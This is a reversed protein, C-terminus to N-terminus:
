SGLLQSLAKVEQSFHINQPPYVANDRVGGRVIDLQVREGTNRPPLIRVGSEHVKMQGPFSGYKLVQSSGPQAVGRTEEMLLHNTNSLQAFSGYPLRGQGLLNGSADYGRVESFRVTDRLQPVINAVGNSSVRALQQASLRQSLTSGVETGIARTADQAISRTHNFSLRNDSLGREVGSRHNVSQASTIANQQLAKKQAQRFEYQQVIERSRQAQTEELERLRTQTAIAQRQEQEAIIISAQRETEAYQAKRRYSYELEQQRVRADLAAKQEQEKVHSKVANRLAETQADAALGSIGNVVREAKSSSLGHSKLAEIQVKRTNEKRAKEERWVTLRKDEKQMINEVMNKTLGYPKPSSVPKTTKPLKRALDGEIKKNLGAGEGLLRSMLSPSGISQLLQKKDQTPVLLILSNSVRSPYHRYITALAGHKAKGNTGLLNLKPHGNSGQQVIDKMLASMTSIDRDGYDSYMRDLLAEFRSDNGDPYLRGNLLSIVESRYGKDLAQCLLSLGSNRIEKVAPTEKSHNYESKDPLFLAHQATSIMARNEEPSLLSESALKEEFYQLNHLTNPILEGKLADKDHFLVEGHKQEKNTTSREGGEAKSSGENSAQSGGAASATQNSLATAGGINAGANGEDDKDDKDDKKHNEKVEVQPNKADDMEEEHFPDFKDLPLLNEVPGIRNKIAHENTPKFHGSDNSWSLLSGGGKLPNDIKPFCMTGALLVPKTCRAAKEEISLSSDRLIDGSNNLYALSSHGFNIPGCARDALEKRSYIQYKEFCLVTLPDEELIAFVVEGTPIKPDSGDIPNILYADNHVKSLTCIVDDPISLQPFMTNRACSVMNQSASHKKKLVEDISLQPSKAVNRIRSCSLRPTTSDAHQTTKPGTVGLPNAKIM